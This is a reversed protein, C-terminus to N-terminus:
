ISRLQVFSAALFYIGSCLAFVAVLWSGGKLNFMLFRAREEAKLNKLQDHWISFVLGAIIVLVLGLLFNLHRAENLFGHFIAPDILQHRFKLSSDKKM